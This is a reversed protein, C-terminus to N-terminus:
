NCISSLFEKRDFNYFIDHMMIVKRNEPYKARISDYEKIGEEKGEIFMIVIVKNLQISVSDPYKAIQENYGNLVIKFYKMAESNNNMKELLLAKSVKLALLQPNLSICTNLTIIGSDCQGMKCQLLAKTTYFMYNDKKLNIAENLLALGRKLSDINQNNHSTIRIAENNLL